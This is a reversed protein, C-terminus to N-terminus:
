AQSPNGLALVTGAFLNVQVTFRISFGPGITTAFESMIRHALFFRELLSRSCVVAATERLTIGPSISFLRHHVTSQHYPSSSSLGGKSLM